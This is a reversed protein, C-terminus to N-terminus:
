NVKLVQTQVVFRSVLIDGSGIKVALFKIQNIAEKVKNEIVLSNVYKDFYVPYDRLISKTSNFYNIALENDGNEHSVLASFYKSLYRHNFNQNESTKSFASSHYLFTIIIFLIRLIKFYM